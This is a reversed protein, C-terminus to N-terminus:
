GSCRAIIRQQYLINENHKASETVYFIVPGVYCVKYYSHFRKSLDALHRFIENLNGV